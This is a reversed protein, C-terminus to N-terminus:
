TAAGLFALLYKASVAGDNNTVKFSDSTAATTAWGTADPRGTAIWGGTTLTWTHTAAGFGWLFQTAAANGLTISSCLTGTVQGGTGDGVTDTDSLLWVVLAKIRANVISTDGVVNTLGGNLDITENAGGTLTRVTAYIENAQLAGTGLTFIGNKRYTWTAKRRGAGTQYKEGSYTFLIGATASLVDLAM